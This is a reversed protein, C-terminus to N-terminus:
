SLLGTIGADLMVGQFALLRLMGTFPIEEIKPKTLSFERSKRIRM